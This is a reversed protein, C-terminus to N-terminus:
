VSVRRTENFNAPATPVPGPAGRAGNLVYKDSEEVVWAEGDWEIERDICYDYSFQEGRGGGVGWVHFARVTPEEGAEVWDLVTKLAGDDDFMVYEDYADIHAEHFFYRGIASRLGRYLALRDIGEAMM